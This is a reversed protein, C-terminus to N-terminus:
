KGICFSTFIKGLLEESTVQGTIEALANQAQRLEEAVLEGAQFALHADALALAQAALELAQVHRRRAMLVGEAGHYGSCTKFHEYLLPLGAGSKASLWLAHGDPAPLSAPARGSMDIKNHIITVAVGQPLRQCLAQDEETFGQVDDVLLLIRDANEIAAWARRMGEQEVVDDSDRLGATDVIHLPMGEVSIQERLVDRTTGPIDTVIASDRGALCNLLSSKGVNPRGVIVVTMGDRLLRGQVASAQLSSLQQRLIDLRQVLHQDNLFDAEEEPFDIAAEVYVRLATLAEVLEHVQQSLAGELSRLAARAAQTTSSAILDAIAEAQALDLRENLFARESFEGPRAPRAGLELTRALLLELVVPGGHGHLEVVDEGTFSHPAPFYLLLGHDLTSGDAAQFRRLTAHRPPPLAGGMQKAIHTSLAGSIRVIGVGGRGQPTAIAAITDAGEVSATPRSSYPATPLASM